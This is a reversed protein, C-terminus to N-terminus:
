RIGGNLFRVKPLLERSQRSPPNGALSVVTALEDVTYVLAREAERFSIRSRIAGM